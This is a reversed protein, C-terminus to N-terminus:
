RSGYVSDGQTCKIYFKQSQKRPQSLGRRKPSRIGKRGPTIVWGAPSVAWGQGSILAQWKWERGGARRPKVQNIFLSLWSTYTFEKILHFGCWFLWLSVHLSLTFIAAWCGGCYRTPQYVFLSKLKEVTFGKFRFVHQETLSEIFMTKPRLSFITRKQTKVIASISHCIYHKMFHGFQWPWYDLLITRSYAPSMETQHINADPVQFM